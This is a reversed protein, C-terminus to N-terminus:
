FCVLFYVHPTKENVHSYLSIIHQQFFDTSGDIYIYDFMFVQFYLNGFPPLLNICTYDTALHVNPNM